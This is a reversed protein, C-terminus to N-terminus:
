EVEELFEPPPAVAAEAAFFPEEYTFLDLPYEGSRYGVTVSSPEGTSLVTIGNKEEGVRIRIVSDFGTGSGRFWAEDGIIAILKPGSYIAPPPPPGSNAPPTPDPATSPTPTPTPDPAARVTRFPKFFASRGNFREIDVLAVSAHKEIYQQTQPDIPDDSAIHLVPALAATGAILLYCGGVLIAGISWGLPGRLSGTSIM